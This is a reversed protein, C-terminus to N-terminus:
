ARLGVQTLSAFRICPGTDALFHPWITFTSDDNATVVTIQATLRKVLCERSDCSLFACLMCADEIQERSQSRFAPLGGGAAGAAAAAAAPAPFAAATAAASAPAEEFAVPQPLARSTIALAKYSYGMGGGDPVGDGDGGEIVVAPGDETGM